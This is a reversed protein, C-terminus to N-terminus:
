TKSGVRFGSGLQSQFLCISVRFVGLGFIGLKFVVLGSFLLRSFVLDSFLLGQFCGANSTICEM